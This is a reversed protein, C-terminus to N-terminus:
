GVPVALCIFSGFPRRPQVESLARRKPPVCLKLRLPQLALSTLLFLVRCLETQLRNMTIELSCLGSLPLSINRRFM